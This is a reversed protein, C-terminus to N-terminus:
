PKIEPPKLAPDIAPYIQMLIVGGYREIRKEIEAIEPVTLVVSKNGDIRKALEADAWKKRGDEERPLAYLADAIASGLTLRPCRQCAPDDDGQGPKPPIKQSVDPAPQGNQDVLVKTMDIQQAQAAFPALSLVGALLLRKM